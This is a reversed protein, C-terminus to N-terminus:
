VGVGVNSLLTGRALFGWDIRCMSRICPLFPPLPVAPDNLVWELMVWYLEGVPKWAVRTFGSFSLFCQYERAIKTELKLIWVRSEPGRLSGQVWAKPCGLGKQVWAKPRGLGKGDSSRFM